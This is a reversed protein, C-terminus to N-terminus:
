GAARKHSSTVTLRAHERDGPKPSVVIQVDRDLANLYRILREMSFGELRGSLLESVKPQSTGLLVAAKAQTLARAAIAAAIQAALAAKAAFEEPNRLGLDAFVNGGSRTHENADHTRM